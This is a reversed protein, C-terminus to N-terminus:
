YSKVISWNVDGALLVVFDVRGIVIGNLFQLEPVELMAAFIRIPPSPKLM